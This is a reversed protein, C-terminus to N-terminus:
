EDAEYAQTTARKHQPMDLTIPQVKTQSAQIVAGAEGLRRIEPKKYEM